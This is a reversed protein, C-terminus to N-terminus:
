TSKEQLSQQYAKMSMLTGVALIFAVVSLESILHLGYFFNVYNYVSQWSTSYALLVLHSIFLLLTFTQLLKVHWTDEGPILFVFNFLVYYYPSLNLTTYILLMTTFFLYRAELKRVLGLYLISLLASSIFYGNTTLYARQLREFTLSAGLIYDPTSPLDSSMLTILLNRLGISFLESQIYTSHLGINTLFESWAGLSTYSSSVILLCLSSVICSSLFTLYRQTSNNDSLNTNKRTQSFYVFLGKLLVTVIILAPFIRMLTATSLFLASLRYRNLQWSCIGFITLAYWGYQLFNGLLKSFPGFFITTTFLFVGAVKVGFTYAVVAIAGVLLLLDLNFLLKSWFRNELSILNALTGAVFTYFPSPNYGKDTRVDKLVQSHDLLWNLDRTFEGWRDPTFREKPCQPLHAVPVLRYTTLDRVTENGKWFQLSEQDAETACSYLHRYGLEQFYKAGLYYHFVNWARISAPKSSTINSFNKGYTIGFVALSLVIIIVTCFKRAISGSRLVFSDIVFILFFVVCLILLFSTQSAM